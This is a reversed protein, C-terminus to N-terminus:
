DVMSDFFEDSTRSRHAPTRRGLKMKDLFSSNSFKLPEFTEALLWRLVRRENEDLSASIKINFCFETEIDNISPNISQRVQGLLVNKKYKSLAPTRYLHLLQELPM